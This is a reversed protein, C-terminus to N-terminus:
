AESVYIDYVGSLYTFNHGSHIAAVDNPSTEPPRVAEDVRQCCHLTERFFGQVPAYLNFEVDGDIRYIFAAAPHTGHGGIFAFDFTTGNDKTRSSPRPVEGRGGPDIQRDFRETPLDHPSLRRLIKRRVKGHHDVEIATEVETGSPFESFIRWRRSRAINKKGKRVRILFWREFRLEVFREDCLDAFLCFMTRLKQEFRIDDTLPATGSQVFICGITVRYEAAALNFSKVKGIAEATVSYHM